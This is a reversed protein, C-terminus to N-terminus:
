WVKMHFFITCFVHWIGSVQCPFQEREHIRWKGEVTKKLPYTQGFDPMGAPNQAPLKAPCFEVLGGEASQRTVAADRGGQVTEFFAEAKPPIYYGGPGTGFGSTKSCGWEVLLVLMFFLFIFGAARAAANIPATASNPAAPHSSPDLGFSHM